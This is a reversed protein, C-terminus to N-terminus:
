SYLLSAIEFGLNHHVRCLEGLKPCCVLLTNSISSNPEELFLILSVEFVHTIYLSIEMGVRVGVGLVVHWLM